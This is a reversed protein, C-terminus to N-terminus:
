NVIVKKIISQHDDTLKLFYFGCPINELTYSKNQLLPSKIQQMIQGNVSILQIEDLARETQINIKQNTAPNPYVAVASLLDFTQLSLASGWISAVYEPHDVFPNRNGQYNFVANNRNTEKTSVPDSLHWQYLMDLAWQSFVKSSSGDLMSDGDSDNGTWGSVQNQYRTAMYFYIRAFDGKFEAAPEFVIANSAGPAANNGRKSGNFSTFNASGVIGYAYNGRVGNVYKDAPVVHFADNHMPPADNFWSKPFSHERNYKQCQATGSSGTDQDTGFTLSCSSYMDWVKNDSRIDSTPYLTWLSSYGQDVHGNTIITQLQTKLAYGTGTAPTYYNAPAQAFAVASLLYLVFTYNKKM